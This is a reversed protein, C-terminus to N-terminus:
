INVLILPFTQKNVNNLFPQFNFNIFNFNLQSIKEGEGTSLQSVQCTVSVSVPCPCLYLHVGSVHWTVVRPVVVGCWAHGGEASGAAASAAARPTWSSTQSASSTAAPPCRRRRPGARWMRRKRFLYNLNDVQCIPPMPKSTDKICLWINCYLM